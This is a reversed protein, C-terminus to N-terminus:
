ELIEPLLRIGKSCEQFTLGMVFTDDIYGFAIVGKTALYSFIPKLIRTFNRPAQALGNPLCTYQYLKNRWIFKLLKRDALRVPVTYYADSLDVSGMFCGKTMLSAATHISEMKFHIYTIDLNLVSLDLIIRSRNNKKPRPFINSIFEGEEHSSLQIVGKQLFLELEFDISDNEAESFHLQRPLVWQCPFHELEITIGSIANM